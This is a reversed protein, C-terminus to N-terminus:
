ESRVRTRCSLACGSKDDIGITRVEHSSAAKADSHAPGDRMPVHDESTTGGQTWLLEQSSWPVDHLLKVPAYIRGRPAIGVGYVRKLEELSVPRPLKRVSLVRYAFDCREMDPHRENFKKNGIGDEPLPPDGPLRTRAPDIECVYSIHSLPAKLYFWVRKVSANLRYRRFEYTKERQVIQQMCEDTMPLIVDTKM